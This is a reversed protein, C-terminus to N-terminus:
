FLCIYFRSPNAQKFFTKTIRAVKCIFFGKTESGHIFKSLDVEYNFLHQIQTKGQNPRQRKVRSRKPRTKTSSTPRSGPDMMESSPPNGTFSALNRRSISFNLFELVTSKVRDLISRSLFWSMTWTLPLLSRLLATASFFKASFIEFGLSKIFWLAVM